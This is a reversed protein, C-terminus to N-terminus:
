QITPSRQGLRVAVLLAKEVSDANEPLGTTWTTTFGNGIAAQVDGLVASDVKTEISRLNEKVQDATAM